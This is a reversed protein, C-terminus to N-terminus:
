QDSKGEGSKHGSEYLIGMVFEQNGKAGTIGAPIMGSVQFGLSEAESRIEALVREVVAPDKLIGGDTEKSAEFQPKVLIYGELPGAIEGAFDALPPLISKLSIFSVDCTVVLGERRNRDAQEIWDAELKRANRRELVVVREDRRLKYDLMGYAVDVAYVRAAGHELLFQTFGGHAAGLDLCVRGDVEPQFEAFATELKHAARSVYQKEATVRLECDPDVQIGARTERRGDVFVRGALVLARAREEAHGARNLLELLPIQKM